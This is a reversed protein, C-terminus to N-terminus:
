LWNGVLIYPAWYRPHDRGPSRMLAIQAQQLAQAKSSKELFQPDLLRKYLESTFEVSVKDDLTWLSAIASQAGARVAVGSIGLTARQDGAATECASLVLLDISQAIQQGRDRFLRDVDKTTIKSAPAALIFTQEPVSSFEGHTSLHLIHFESTNIERQFRAVTFDSNLLPQLVTTGKEAGIEQIRKLEAEVNPLDPFEKADKGQPKALGAPFVKLGKAPLRERAQIQLRPALAIAYKEVLYHTNDPSDDYVLAALPLNRLTTDLAFVLTDINNLYPEAQKVLWDYLDKGEKRVAEYTYEEELDKQLQRVTSEVEKRPVDFRYHKLFQEEEGEKILKKSPNPLKLIVEIRDELVIPHLFAVTRAETNVIQDVQTLNYEPCAQRLFNELEVAQLSAIVKRAEALDPKAPDQEHLLLDVYERYIGEIDKQFSIQTDPNGMALEQRLSELTKYAERYASRAEAETQDPQQKTKIPSESMRTKQIRGLQWQWQYIIEPAPMSQALWLAQQTPKIAEDWRNKHEFYKGLYGLAYSEALLDGQRRAQEATKSFVSEVIEDEGVVDKLRTLTEAFNLRTYLETHGLPLAEIQKQLELLVPIQETPSPLKLATLDRSSVRVNYFPPTHRLPFTLNLNQILYKWRAAEPLEWVPDTLWDRLDLILNLQNLQAQLQAISLSGPKGSSDNGAKEYISADCQTRDLANVIIGQVQSQSFVNQYALSACQAKKIADKISKGEQSRNFLDQAKNSLARETNGLDVLIAAQDNGPAMELSLLLSQKSLELEGMGRLVNGLNRLGTVKAPLDARQRLTDQSNKPDATEPSLDACDWNGQQTQPLAAGQPVPKEREIGANGLKETDRTQGSTKEPSRDLAYVQLLTKCARPYLGLAQEAQAQNIQNTIVETENGAQRYALAARKWCDIAEDFHGREYSERGQASLQDASLVSTKSCILVIADPEKSMAQQSSGMQMGLVSILSLLSLIVLTAKRYHTWKRCLPHLNLLWRKLISEM